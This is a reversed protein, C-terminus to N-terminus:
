TRRSRSSCSLIFDLSWIFGDCCCCWFCCCSWLMCECFLWPWAGCLPCRPLWLTPPNTGFWKCWGESTCFSKFNPNPPMPWSLEIPIIPCNSLLCCSRRFAALLTLEYISETLYLRIDLRICLNISCPFSISHFFFLFVLPFSSLRCKRNKKRRTREKRGGRWRRNTHTHSVM